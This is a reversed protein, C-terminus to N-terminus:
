AWTVHHLVPKSLFWLLIKLFVFCLLTVKTFKQQTIFSQENRWKLDSFPVLNQETLMKGKVQSKTPCTGQIDLCRETSTDTSSMFHMSALCFHCFMTGSRRPMHGSIYQLALTSDHVFPDTSGKNGSPDRVSSAAWNSSAQIVDVNKERGALTVGLDGQLGQNKCSQCM